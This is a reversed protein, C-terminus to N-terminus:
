YEVLEYDEPIVFLSDDASNKASEIKIFTSTGAQIFEIFKLEDGDFYYRDQGNEASFEEYYYEKGEVTNKGSKFNDKNIGTSKLTEVRFCDNETDDYVMYAKNTDYVRYVKADKYIQVETSESNETKNYNVGNKTAMTLTEGGFSIVWLYEATNVNENFYTFTRSVEDGTSLDDKSCAVFSMCFAFTLILSIIRKM